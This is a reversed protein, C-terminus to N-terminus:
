DVLNMGLRQMAPVSMDPIDITHVVPRRSIYAWIVYRKRDEDVPIKGRYEEPTSMAKVKFDQAELHDGFRRM